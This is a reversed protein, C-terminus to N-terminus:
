IFEVLRIDSISIQGAANLVRVLDVGDATILANAAQDTLEVTPLGDETDYTIEIRGGGSGPM